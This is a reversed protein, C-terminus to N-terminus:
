KNNLNSGNEATIFLAEPFMQTCLDKGVVTIIEKPYIRLFPIVLDFSRFTKLLVGMSTCIGM